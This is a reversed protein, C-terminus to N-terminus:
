GQDDRLCQEVFALIAKSQFGEAMQRLRAAFPRYRPDIVAIHEAYQVIDRMSGRQALQHLTLLEDDSPLVLSGASEAGSLFEGGTGADGTPSPALALQAADAFPLELEFRFTSGGGARSEVVIDGGMMRVLQRSITLGLGAGGFRRHADGFQEFPHFIRELESDVIGIGSDEIAFALRSPSIRSVRLAIRGAETFKVANSLLNLLVQRLRQEDGRIGEPLDSALDCFFELGCERAKVGIKEGIEQLFNGLSIENMALEFRGAEISALDLIDEILALLHDGSQRIVNLAEASREGLTKDRQLIQTYGLIGNLPTRLEHSMQTIFKRRQEALRTAEGLAEERAAEYRKLGTIDRGIALVGTLEGRENREAVMRVHHIQKGNDGGSLEVEVEGDEGSALVRNLTQSYADFSGDTHIERDRKGVLDAARVGLTKELVANLYVIRGDPDYRVINDPANEALTRFDRERSALLAEMRRRETFDTVIGVLVPAKDAGVFLTKRTYLHRTEGQSDTLSEEGTFAKGSVFVAEDGAWFERAEHVSFFDFDSKGILEERSHGILRCCAENLHIWRHQRDKVFIPDAISDIINYLFDRSDQLLTEMRMRESVDRSVGVTGLVAGDEDIVPAKDIERWITGGCRDPFSVLQTTRQRTEMVELDSARLAQGIDGPWLELDTKGLMDAPARDKIAANIALYRSGTDKLWASVPLTDFLTRLYYTQQRLEGTCTQVSKELGINLLSIEHQSQRLQANSIELLRHSRRLRLLLFMTLVLLVGSGGLLLGMWEHSRNLQDPQQQKGGVENRPADMEARSRVGSAAALGDDAGALAFGPLCLTALCVALAVVRKRLSDHM